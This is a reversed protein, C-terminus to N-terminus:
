GDRWLDRSMRDLLPADAEIVDVLARARSSPPTREDEDRERWHSADYGETRDQTPESM